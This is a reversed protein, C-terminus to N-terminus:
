LVWWSVEFLCVCGGVGCCTLCLVVFGDFGEAGGSVVLLACSTGFM